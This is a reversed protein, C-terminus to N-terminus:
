WAARPSSSECIPRSSCGAGRPQLGVVQGVVLCFPREEPLQEQESTAGPPFAAREPSAWTPGPM